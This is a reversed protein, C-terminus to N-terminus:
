ADDETWEFTMGDVTGMFKAFLNHVDDYIGMKKAKKAPITEMIIMFLDSTLIVLELQKVVGIIENNDPHELAFRDLRETLEMIDPDVNGSKRKKGM